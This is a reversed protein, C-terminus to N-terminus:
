PPRSGSHSWATPSALPPGGSVWQPLCWARTTPARMAAAAAPSTAHSGSRSAGTGCTTKLSGSTALTPIVSASARSAPWSTTTERTGVEDAAPM